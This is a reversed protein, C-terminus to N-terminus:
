CALTCVHDFVRASAGRWLRMAGHTDMGASESNTRTWVVTGIGAAYSASYKRELRQAPVSCTHVIVACLCVMAEGGVPERADADTRLEEGAEAGAESGEKKQKRALDGPALEAVGTGTHVFIRQDTDIQVAEVRRTFTEQCKLVLGAGDREFITVRNPRGPASLGGGGATILAGDGVSAISLPPYDLKATIVAPKVRRKIARRARASGWTGFVLLSAWKSVRMAAALALWAAALIERLGGRHILELNVLWIIAALWWTEIIKMATEALPPLPPNLAAEEKVRVRQGMLDGAQSDEVDEGGGRVARLYMWGATHPYAHRAWARPASGAPGHVLSEGLGILSFVVMSSAAHMAFRARAGPLCTTLGVSPM